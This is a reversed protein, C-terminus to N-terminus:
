YVKVDLIWGNIDITLSTKGELLRDAIGESVLGWTIADFATVISWAGLVPGLWSFGMSFLATTVSEASSKGGFYKALERVGSSQNKTSTKIRTGWFPREVKAGLKRILDIHNNQVADRYREQFIEFNQKKLHDKLSKVKDLGIKKVLEEENELVFGQYVRKVHPSAIDILQQTTIHRHEKNAKVNAYNFYLLLVLTLISVVFKKFIKKM